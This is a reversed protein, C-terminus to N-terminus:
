QGKKFKTPKPGPKFCAPPVIFASPSNDALWRHGTITYAVDKIGIPYIHCSITNIVTWGDKITWVADGVEADIFDSNYQKEEPM